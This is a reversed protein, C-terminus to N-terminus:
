SLTRVVPDKHFLRAHFLAGLRCNITRNITGNLGIFSLFNFIKNTACVNFRNLTECQGKEREAWFIILCHDSPSWFTITHVTLCWCRFNLHRAISCFSDIWTRARKHWRFKVCLTREFSLFQFFSWTLPTRAFSKRENFKKKSVWFPLGRFRLM